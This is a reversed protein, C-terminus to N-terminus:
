DKKSCGLIEMIRVFLNIFDLYLSTACGLHDANGEQYSKRAIHSDYISMATFLAVGGYIDVNHLLSSFPGPGFLMMSALGVVQTGLLTLLGVGLPAKWAMITEDQIRTSAYACGGLISGSIVLASPLISPDIAQTMGLMPAFALGMGTALGWFSAERLPPNETRFCGHDNKQIPNIYGIGLVSILSTVAGAGLVQFPYETALPLSLLGTGITAGVGMATRTYVRSMYEQLGKKYDQISKSEQISKSGGVMTSACRHLHKSIITRTHLMQNPLIKITYKEILHIYSTYM